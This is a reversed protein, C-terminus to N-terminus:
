PRLSEVLRALRAAGTTIQRPTVGGYGLVFGDREPPQLCYRSVPFVVLSQDSAARAVRPVYRVSAANRQTGGDFWAVVHTGATTATLTLLGGLERRFASRMADYREQYVLRARRLHRDYHGELIFAALAAQDAFPPNRSAIARANAAADILSEPVICFGLRLAPFMTKSFTGVYIVRAPAGGASDSDLRQLAPVPRGRYRFYSDYDDEIVWAGARRAWDLLAARRPASLTVGTPYQHSPSVVALRADPAVAVGCAVDLGFGDVPVPVLSAGAGVLAARVDLYGPEELWVREGPDILLRFLMDFAQQAGSTVIVQAADCRVGRSLNIHEAIARRLLSSGAPDGYDLDRARATRWHRTVLRTWVKTPFLDLAPRRPHFPHPGDEQRPGTIVIASLARGRDSLRPMRSGAAGAAVPPKGPRARLMREPPTGAVFTGSRRRSTLYGESLLRDIAAAATFRSVSLEEALTRTSALRTGGQLRGREIADRLAAYIQEYM